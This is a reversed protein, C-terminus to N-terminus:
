RFWEDFNPYHNIWKKFDTWEKQSVMLELVKSRYQPTKRLEDIKDETLNFAEVLERKSTRRWWCKEAVDNVRDEDYNAM